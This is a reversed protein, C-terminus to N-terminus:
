KPDHYKRHVHDSDHADKHVIGLPTSVPSYGATAPDGALDASMHSNTFDQCM